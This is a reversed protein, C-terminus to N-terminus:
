MLFFCEIPINVVNDQKYLKLQNKSFVLGYDCKIKKMTKVVRSQNRSGLGFEIAIKRLHALKLIFDCYGKDTKAYPYVLQGVLGLRFEKYYHLCAVDELLQGRMTQVQGLNGSIGSHAARLAASAFQYRAPKRSSAVNNGHAAVKLLVEAAMLAELMKVLQARSTSLIDAMKSLKLRSDVALIFLLRKITEVSDLSFNFQRRRRIDKIIIQDVNNILAQYVDDRGRQLSFPMTGVELYHSITQRDYQGFAQNIEPEIVKLKSVVEEATKSWYCAEILKEKLGAPPQKQYTLWQYEVFSLPYLRKISARRGATDADMQLYTAASGTCILFINPNRDYVTKLTQAWGGDMQVEDIFLFTPSDIDELYQGVIDQYVEFVDLLTGGLNVVIDLSIYIQDFRQGQNHNQSLWNDVQKILTTKGVGRLGPIVVWRQQQDGGIFNELLGQLELQLPRSILSDEPLLRSNDHIQRLLYDKLRQNM